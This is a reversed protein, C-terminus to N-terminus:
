KEKNNPENGLDKYEENDVINAKEEKTTPKM